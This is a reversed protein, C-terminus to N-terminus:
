PYQAKTGNVAEAMRDLVAPRQVHSGDPLILRRVPVDLLRDAVHVLDVLTHAELKHMARARHVKVTKEGIGLAMAVQKNALGAAVLGAVEAERPTLRSATAWLQVISWREDSVRRARQLVGEVSTSVRQASLPKPLLDAAGAKMADIILSVDTTDTMFITPVDIGERRTRRYMELGDLDPMGIDAVLCVPRLARARQDLYERASTFEVVRYGRNELEVRIAACVSRDDDVVAVIDHAPRESRDDVSAPPQQKAAMAHWHPLVPVKM